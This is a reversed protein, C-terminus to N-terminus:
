RDSVNSFPVESQTPLLLIFQQSFGVAEIIHQPSVLSCRGGAEIPLFVWDVVNVFCCQSVQLATGQILGYCIESALQFCGLEWFPNVLHM